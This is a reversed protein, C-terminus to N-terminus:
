DAPSNHDTIAIPQIYGPEANTPTSSKGIKTKQALILQQAWLYSNTLYVDLLLINCIVIVFFFHDASDRFSPKTSTSKTQQPLM